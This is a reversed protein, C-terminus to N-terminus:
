IILNKLDINVVKVMQNNAANIFAKSLAVQSHNNEFSYLWQGVPNASVSTNVKSNEVGPINIKQNNSSILQSFAINNWVKNFAPNRIEDNDESMKNKNSSVSSSPCCSKRESEIIIDEVADIM